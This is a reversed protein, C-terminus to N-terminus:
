PRILDFLRAAFADVRTGYPANWVSKLDRIARELNSIREQRKALRAAFDRRWVENWYRWCAVYLIVGHVIRLAAGGVGQFVDFALAALAYLAVVLWIYHSKDKV